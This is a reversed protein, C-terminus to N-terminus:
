SSGITRQERDKSSKGPNFRAFGLRRWLKKETIRSQIRLFHFGYIVLGLFRFLFRVM